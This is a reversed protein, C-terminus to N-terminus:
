VEMPVTFHVRTGKENSISLNGGIEKIRKEMNFIGNSFPRINKKDFGIGDDGIYIDLQKIVTIKIVVHNAQAHKVVNHLAEKVSLFINRRFEGSVFLQPFQDPATISCRIGNQSLYEVAYSRTYSLLDSLSDNKENLAWVIEGMKDIMEHTYDRIKNIDEEFPQGKQKKIGITESLFKIRSLGAGLDDHMDTAIRTREKEIAQQKELIAKEKELKRNYYFHLSAALIAIGLIGIGTRFWWTQWWPPDIVFSFSTSQSAYREEPFICKVKLTYSAPPLNIFNFISQNSPESWIPNGSGELLYSYLISREDWFSPAAFSFTFNNQPSSFHATSLPFPQNNVKMERMYLHPPMVAPNLLSSAIKLVIGESSLAWVQNTATVIIKNIPQFYDNNKSINGIIYHQNKLTLKDLGTQTGAWINGSSDCTLTYIFNDTLGNSSNFQIVSDINLNNMKLFVIGRYRTGIWANNMKDTLISRPNLNPLEKTYDKQLQLYQSASEPHITFVLLQGNRTILWLRGAKDLTAQDGISSNAFKYIVKKGSIVYTYFSLDEKNIQIIINGFPDIVANGLSINPESFILEPHQYSAPFNKNAICLLKNSTELYLKENYSYINTITVRPSPLRFSTVSNKYVKYIRHDASNAIWTFDGDRAIATVVAPAQNLFNLLEVGSNTLKAVGFGDTAIWLIGERDIFLNTINKVNLGQSSSITQSEVEGTFRHISTKNFFWKNDNHDFVSFSNKLHSIAQYSKGPHTIVIKEVELASTDLFGVGNNSSIWLRGYIDECISNVDEKTEIAVVKKKLTDYLILKEKLSSNWPILLMFHKWEIIRELYRGTEKNEKDRLHIKVFKNGSLLFLGEDAAAYYSGSKSKYFRNIVPCFNDATKFIGTKGNVLTNLTDVNTAVLLSDPTIEIIDNVVDKVLGNQSSYNIFRAGDYISLGGRTIFYIFGRSDQRISKVRSNVLGDKPTYYVFPYQQAFCNACFLFYALIFVTRQM